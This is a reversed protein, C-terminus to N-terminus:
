MTLKSVVDEFRGHNSYRYGKQNCTINIRLMLDPNNFDWCNKSNFPINLEFKDGEVKDKLLSLPLRHLFYTDSHVEMNYADIYNIGHDGINDSDVDESTLWVEFLQENDYDGIFVNNANNIADLYSRMGENFEILEKGLIPQNPVIFMDANITLTQLLISTRKM